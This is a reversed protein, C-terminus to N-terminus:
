REDIENYNINNVDYIYILIDHHFVDSILCISAFIIVSLVYIRSGYDYKDINHEQTIYKILIKLLLWIIAGGILLSMINALIQLIDYISKDQKMLTGISATFILFIFFLRNKNKETMVILKYNM